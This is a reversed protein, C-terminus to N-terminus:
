VRGPLRATLAARAAEAEPALRAAAGQAAPLDGARAAQELAKAAEALRPAGIYAASSKLGHAEARLRDAQGAALAATIAEHRAALDGLFLEIMEQVVDPGDPEQLARLAELAADDVAPGPAPVPVPAPPPAAPAGWRALMAALQEPQVPKALYDDMGSALCKERDGQMANATMAVIPTRAVPGALRRIAATAEYGDMEPMMCDMFVVAFPVRQVLDLAEAGDAAVDVHCGLKSLMRAAVKQNVSNDDVVLVRLGAPVAAAPAPAATPAPAPAPAPLLVARLAAALEDARPPKRLVRQVGLARVWDASAAGAAASVLLVPLTAFAADARLQRLFAEGSVGPLRHDLLVGHFPRGAAHAERIVALAEPGAAGETTTAGLAQLQDSLLARTLSVDDVILLRTGAPLGAPPPAAPQDALPLTVTFHFTSGRGPASDLGISGGMLEVLQRCIALGLGTGGFRRTTSSDAQVFPQFLRAQQEPAIGIGTDTVAFRVVAQGPPSPALGVDVLVHGQATFKIANSVLNTLVQRLRGADGVVFGPVGRGYRVLLELGKEAARPSLLDAVEGVTRRLDFPVPELTLKGAESKSFDLIDNVITLLSEASARITEATERQEATLQSGLLLGTMGIVGNMPTRIEHSMSALFEAKLRASEEAQRRARVLEDVSETVIIMGGVTGDAHRWPEMAWRVVCTSGDPLPITDEACSAQEGALVRQHLARREGDAWPFFDYHSRGTLDQGDLHSDACWKRSTALYRMQTDLMAIAIPANRIITGFRAHEEELVSARQREHTIDVHTGVMRAPRGDAAWEVVKGRDLVWAWGGDRRRLRHETQYQPTRGALHAELAARVAPADEPHLLDEWASVNAKVQAQAYGLMECWRRSFHVSGTAIEWDWLGDNTAELAHALRRESVRLAAESQRRPGVDVATGLYGLLRGAADRRPCAEGEVWTITGDPRQYRYTSAVAEGRAVAAEWERALRERDEPHVARLWGTGLADGLPMATVRRWEANVFTCAGSEDHEFAIIPLADLAARAAALAEVPARLLHRLALGALRTLGERQAPSLQRPVTDMVCLAGLALGAEDRLPVGAYFRIGPAGSVLPSDAVRPDTTADAVELLGAELIAHACFAADRSTERAEVGVRAKFWQRGQDVLSVCAMPTGCLLAAVRALDDLAPDPPTDLVGLRRLAALRATEDPPLAAPPM